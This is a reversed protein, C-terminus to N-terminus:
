GCFVTSQGSVVTVAGCIRGDNNRHIPIGESFVTASHGTAFPDCHPPGIPICLADPNAASSLYVVKTGGIFLKGSNNDALLDGAGHTNPDGMVSVLEGM